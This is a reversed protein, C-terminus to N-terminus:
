YIIPALYLSSIFQHHIILPLLFSNFACGGFPDSHLLGRLLQPLVSVAALTWGNDQQSFFNGLFWGQSLVEVIIFMQKMIDSYKYWMADGIFTYSMRKLRSQVEKRQLTVLDM